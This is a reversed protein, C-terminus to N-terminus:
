SKIASLKLDHLKAGHRHLFVAFGNHLGPGVVIADRTDPIPQAAGADVFQRLQEVNQLAIHRHDSRARMRQRM